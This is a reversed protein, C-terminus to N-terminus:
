RRREHVVAWGDIRRPSFRMTEEGGGDTGAPPATEACTRCLPLVLEDAVALCDGCWPEGCERCAQESTV